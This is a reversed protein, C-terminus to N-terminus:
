GPRWGRFAALLRAGVPGGGPGSAGDLEVVPALEKLTSALYLEDCPGAAVPGERVDIGAARGAEIVTDRTVGVLISGDDPPTWVVGDRVVFVNSRNAETWRGDVVWIVEDVGRAALTWAARSTHKVRGPLWSPPAWARTVVRVPAGVRSRDLPVAKVVRHGGGTLLVNVKWEAASGEGGDGGGAARVVGAIEDALVDEGPWAIGMWAASGRLRALHLEVRFPRGDYTRLTEFVGEGTWLAPDDLLSNEGPPRGDLLTTAM